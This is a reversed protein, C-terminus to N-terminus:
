SDICLMSVHYYKMCIYLMTSLLYCSIEWGKGAVFMWIVYKAEHKPKVWCWPGTAGVDQKDEGLVEEAAAVTTIVGPFVTAFFSEEFDISIIKLWYM